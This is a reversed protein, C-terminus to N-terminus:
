GTVTGDTQLLAKFSAAVTGPNSSDRLEIKVTDVDTSLSNGQVGENYLVQTMTGGGTYYGQIFMKLTVTDVTPCEVVIITQSATSSNGCADTATWTRTITHTGVGQTTNDTYTPTVA